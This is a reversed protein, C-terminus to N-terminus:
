DWRTLLADGWVSLVRHRRKLRYGRWIWGVVGFRVYYKWVRLAHWIRVEFDSRIM